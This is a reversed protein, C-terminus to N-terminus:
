FGIRVNEKPDLSDLVSLLETFGDSDNKISFSDCVVEGAETVIFCDHKFKSIDIGVYFM